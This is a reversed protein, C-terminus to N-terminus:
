DVLTEGDKEKATQGEKLPRTEDEVSKVKDDHPATEGDGQPDPITDDM